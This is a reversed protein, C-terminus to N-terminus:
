KVKIGVVEDWGKRCHKLIWEHEDDDAVRKWKHDYTYVLRCEPIYYGDGIDYANIPIDPINERHDTLQSRGAPKLGQTIETYFSRQEGNCYKWETEDENFELGDAFTYTGQQARGKVFEGEWRAGNKFYMVGHGHFEGNEIEGVYRNGTDFEYEGIKGTNM